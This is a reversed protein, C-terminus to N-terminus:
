GGFRYTLALKIRRGKPDHTFGDYSQEINAWPPVQGTLNMAYLTLDMGSGPFRWLFSLDWTLFPDIVPTTTNGGRDAYSSIYSVYNALTYADWNYAASWRSKWRPLPVAIPHAFNLYGAADREAYLTLGAGELLLEKTDYGLTYTADWSASFQGPGADTRAALHTDIGSTTLGPWNVLDIQIRQLNSAACRDAPLLDLARGGPCIIFPSVAARTATDESAYLSTIADYPMSGIVDEFDYRWYDVTAEVGGELFLVAGANHTRNKLRPRDGIARASRISVLALM